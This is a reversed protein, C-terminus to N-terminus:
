MNIKEILFFSRECTALSVFLTFAVQMIKKYLNPFAKKNLHKINEYNIVKMM